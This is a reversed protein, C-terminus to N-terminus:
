QGEEITYTAKVNVVEATDDVVGGWDVQYIVGAVRGSPDQWVDLRWEGFCGKHAILGDAVRTLGRRTFPGMGTGSPVTYDEEALAERLLDAITTM